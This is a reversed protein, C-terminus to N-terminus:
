SYGTGKSFLTFLQTREEVTVQGTDPQSTTEGGSRRAVCCLTLATKRLLHAARPQELNDDYLILGLEMENAEDTIALTHIPQSIAQQAVTEYFKSQGKREASNKM